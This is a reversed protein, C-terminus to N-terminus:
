WRYFPVNCLSLYTLIGLLCLSELHTHVGLCGFQITSFSSFSLDVIIIPAKLRGKEIILLFLCFILLYLSSFLVVMWISRISIKPCEKWFWCFACEKWTCTLCKGLDYGQSYSVLLTFVAVVVYSLTNGSWVLILTSILLLLNNLFDGFM